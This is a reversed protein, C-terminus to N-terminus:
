ADIAGWSKWTGPAGGATCVWGIKGGASPNSNLLIDGREWQGASPPSAATHIARRLLLRTDPGSPYGRTFLFVAGPVGETGLTLVDAGPAGGIRYAALRGNSNLVGHEAWGWFDAHLQPNGTGHNIHLNPSVADFTHRHCSLSATGSYSTGPPSHFVGDLGNFGVGVAAEPDIVKVGYAAGLAILYKTHYDVGPQNTMVDPQEITVTQCYRDENYVGDRYGDHLGIAIFAAQDPSRYGQFHEFWPRVIRIPGAAKYIDIPYDVNSGCGVIQPDILRLQRVGADIRLFTDCFFTYADKITFQDSRPGAYIGVKCYLVTPAEFINIDSQVGWFGFEFHEMGVNRLHIGGGRWDRIGYSGAKYQGTANLLTDPAAHSIVLNEIWQDQPGDYDVADWAHGNDSGIEFLPGTGHYHIEAGGDVSRIGVDGVLRTGSNRIHLTRTVKYAGKPFRIIRGQGADICQQIADSDDHAGDGVAGFDSPLIDNSM